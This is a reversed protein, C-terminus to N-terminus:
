NKPTYDPNTTLIIKDVAVGDERMWLSLTHIGPDNMEFTKPHKKWSYKGKDVTIVTGRDEEKLDLGAHM